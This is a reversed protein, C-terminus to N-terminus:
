VFCPFQRGCHKISQFIVLPWSNNEDMTCVYTYRSYVKVISDDELTLSMLVYLVPGILNFLADLGGILILSAIPKM